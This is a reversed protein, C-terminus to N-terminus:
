RGPHYESILSQQRIHSPATVNHHCRSGPISICVWRSVQRNSGIVLQPGDTVVSLRWWHYDTVSNAQKMGRERLWTTQSNYKGSLYKLEPLM